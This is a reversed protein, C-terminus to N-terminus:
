RRSSRGPRRTPGSLVAIDSLALAAHRQRADVRGSDLSHFSSGGILRDIEGAIWSGEAQESAAEHFVIAPGSPATGGPRGDQGAGPAAGPRSM